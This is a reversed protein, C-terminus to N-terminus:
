HISLFSALDSSFLPLTLTLSIGEDDLATSLTDATADLGNFFLDFNELDGDFPSSKVQEIAAPTTNAAVSYAPFSTSSSHYSSASPNRRESEYYNHFEWWNCDREFRLKIYKRIIRNTYAPSLKEGQHNSFVLTSKSHPFLFKKRELYSDIVQTIHNDKRLGVYTEFSITLIDNMVQDRSRYALCFLLLHPALFDQLDFTSLRDLLHWHKGDYSRCVVNADDLLVELISRSKRAPWEKEKQPIQSM